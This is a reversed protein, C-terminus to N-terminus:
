LTDVEFHMYNNNTYRCVGALTTSFYGRAPKTAASALVTSRYVLFGAHISTNIVRIADVSFIMKSGIEVCDNASIPGITIYFGNLYKGRLM